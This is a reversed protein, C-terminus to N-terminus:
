KRLRKFRNFMIELAFMAFSVAVGFILLQFSGVIQAMKLPVAKSTGRHKLFNANIYHAAWCKIFGGSVLSNIIQDVENALCSSKTMFVVLNNTFIAEPAHRYFRDPFAKVNRYALHDESTLLAGQFDPNVVQGLLSNYESLNVFVSMELIHPLETIFAKAASLMYFSYNKAMIEETSKLQPERVTTQMFKFLVGKYSNQMVFCYFMFMILVSRAFNRGPLTHLAGGLTINIINLFPTSINRGFIFNRTDSLAALLAVGLILLILFWVFSQFPLLLKDLSSVMPGPPVIWILHSSYYCYSASMYYDRLSTSAFYGLTMNVEGRMTMAIAGSAAFSQRTFFYNVNIRVQQMETFTLKAGFIM